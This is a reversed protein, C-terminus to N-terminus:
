ILKHTRCEEESPKYDSAVRYGQTVKPYIIQCQSVKVTLLPRALSNEMELSKRCKGGNRSFGSQFAYKPTDARYVKRSSGEVHKYQGRLSNLAREEGVDIFIFRGAELNGENLNCTDETGGYIEILKINM